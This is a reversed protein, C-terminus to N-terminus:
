PRLCGIPCVIVGDPRRYACDGVATLVMKFAPHGSKGTDILAELSNLTRAGEEVLTGGGLKIEVLGYKGGRMKVVADCERGQKDRFHCVDGFGVEAYVRLDRIALTEFLLGFTALDSMLDEPGLELAAAAISPDVFYRTDTTRIPTKCRLNACWAKADEVAFLKRLASLYSYITDERINDGDANAVLDARVVSATAQTGQLRAYSRLLRRARVPDRLTGDVRSIDREVLADVYNYAQQLAARRSLGISQPWGGRCTAFAVDALAMGNSAAVPFDGGKFLAGLSVTGSSEGSEWLSMPRMKMWAFRGAGSHFVESLDAPVASGTLIFGGLEDARDVRHRISDWLFPALQWEDVLHPSEGDLAMAPNIKLVGLNGVQERIEDIYTASRAIQESTTTKGCWKVGEVLVAGASELKFALIEDSVRERYKLM